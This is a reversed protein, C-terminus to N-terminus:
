LSWNKLDDLYTVSLCKLTASSGQVRSTSSRIWTKSEGNVLQSKLLWPSRQAWTEEDESHTGHEYRQTNYYIKSLVEEADMWMTQPASVEEGRVKPTLTAQGLYERSCLPQNLPPYTVWNPEILIFGEGLRKNGHNLSSCIRERERKIHIYNQTVPLWKM